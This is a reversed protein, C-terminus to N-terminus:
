KFTGVQIYGHRYWEYLLGQSERDLRVPPTLERADALAGLLRAARTECIHMEGNIFILRGRSLMRTNLALRLGERGIRKALDLPSEPRSPKVMVVGPKPETLYCGLFLAVDERSWHLKRLMSAVRAIMTAPIRGPSQTVRLDPDGYQGELELHDDLFQLFGSALEQASPARFGISYTICEGLAVGDHAWHPPLYLFDGTELTWEAEPRFQRLIKLPLNPVLELNQQRGIQWRRRGRGQVLFVDYSDFHPGVGGGPAAYSVMVDDLRAYPIFDFERLLRAAQPLMRDVSQVLLTWGNRPLRSFDRRTFPGHQVRWRQGNKRVIRSEVDDRQALAMLDERTVAEAYESLTNRAILPKKQWHQRMFDARTLGAFVKKKM